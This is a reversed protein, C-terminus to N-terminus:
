HSANFQNNVVSEKIEQNNISISTFKSLILKIIELIQDDIQNLSAEKNKKVILTAEDIKKALESDLKSLTKSTEEQMKLTEKKILEISEERAELLKKEIEIQIEEAKAQNHKATKIDNNIKTERKELVSSLRPLSIKWLFILLFSFTITLWFLQSLFFEPNLQPM